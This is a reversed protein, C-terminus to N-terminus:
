STGSPLGWVVGDSAVGLNEMEGNGGLYNDRRSREAM